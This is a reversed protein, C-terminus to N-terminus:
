AQPGRAETRRADPRVARAPQRRGRRADAGRLPPHAARGGPRPRLRLGPPGAPLHLGAGQRRPLAERPPRGAFPLFDRCIPRRVRLLEWAPPCPRTSSASSTTSRSASRRSSASPRIAPRSAPPRRSRPPSRGRRARQTTELPADARPRPRDRPRDAARLAGRRLRPAARALRREDWTTSSTPPPSSRTPTWACTWRRTTPTPSAASAPTSRCALVHRPRPLRPRRPRGRRAAGRAGDAFPARIFRTRCAVDAALEAFREEAAPDRDIAILEGAPGSASPSWARTAAAASRATSPSRARSRPRPPRDLEGALVPVHTTTMDVLMASPPPSTPSSTPSRPTTTADLRRPGLGRPMRRRRHRRGGQAPRRARAPLGPGDRPGAADLDTDLSNASFFRQSSARRPRSRTCARCRAPPTPRSAARADLGARLARHGQRPRRGRSLSARFKAPITLRNKADLSYDFTGRFAM